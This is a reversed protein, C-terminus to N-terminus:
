KRQCPLSHSSKKSIWCCCWCACAWCIEEMWGSAICTSYIYKINQINYICPIYKIIMILSVDYYFVVVVLVCLMCLYLCVCVTTHKLVIRQEINLVACYANWKFISSLFVTYFSLFMLAVSMFHSITNMFVWRVFLLPNIKYVCFTNGSM